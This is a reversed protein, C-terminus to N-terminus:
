AAVSDQSARLLVGNDLETLLTERWQLDVLETTGVFNMALNDWLGRQVALDSRQFYPDHWLDRTLSVDVLAM